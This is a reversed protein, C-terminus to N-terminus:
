RSRRALDSVGKNVSQKTKNIRDTYKGHTRQDVARGAKDALDNVKAGHRDALKSAQKLASQMTRNVNIAM